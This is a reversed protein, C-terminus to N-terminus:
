RSGSPLPPLAGEPASRLLEREFQRDPDRRREVGLIVVDGLAHWERGNPGRLFVGRYGLRPPAQTTAGDPDLRTWLQELREALSREVEWTPDARGSFIFAGATWSV